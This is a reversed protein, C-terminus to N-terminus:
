QKKDTLIRNGEFPTFRLGIQLGLGISDTSSYKVEQTSKKLGGEYDFYFGFNVAMNNNYFLSYDLTFKIYLIVNMIDYKNIVDTSTMIDGGSIFNTGYTIMKKEEVGAGPIKAGLGLGISFNRINLKQLIGIQFNHYYSTNLMRATNDIPISYSYTDYSYGTEALISVGMNNKLDIVYGFQATIGMDFGVGPQYDAADIPLGISLGSPINIIAEFGSAALLSLNISIFISIILLLKKM